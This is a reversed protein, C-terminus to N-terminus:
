RPPSSAGSHRGDAGMAASLCAFELIYDVFLYHLSCDLQKHSGSSTATQMIFLMPRRM